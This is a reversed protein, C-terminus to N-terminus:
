VSAVRPKCSYAEAASTQYSVPDDGLRFNQMRMKRTMDNFKRIGLAPAVYDQKHITNFSHPDSGLVYHTDRLDKIVDKNLGANEGQKQPYDLKYSSDSKVKDTGFVLGKRDRGQVQNQPASYSDFLRYNYKYTTVSSAENNGV